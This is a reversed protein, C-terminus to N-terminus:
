PLAAAFKLHNELIGEGGQIGTHRNTFYQCFWKYYMPKGGLPVAMRLHRFQEGGDRKVVAECQAIGTFQAAALLLAHSDGSGQGQPRAQQYGVLRDRRQIGGHLSLDEIKKGVDPLTVPKSQDQDCMRQRDDLVQTGTDDDHVQSPNHLFSRTLIKEEPGPM